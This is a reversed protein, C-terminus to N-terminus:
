QIMGKKNGTDGLSNEFFTNNILTPDSDDSYIGYGASYSLTCNSITPLTAPVDNLNINGNNYSDAYGGGYSLECYNLISGGTTHQGFFIGDWQGPQEGGAPASTTFVIPNGVTGNAVLSGFDGTGIQIESGSTFKVTTGAEVNLTSGSTSQVYLTGDIVFATPQAVWTVSSQNITASYVKIGKDTGYTNGTGITHAFKGSINIDYTTNEDFINNTFSTFSGDDGCEIGYYGSYRITCNNIAIQADENWIAGGYSDAYGGGAEVICYDMVCANTAGNSFYIYDWQGPAKQVSTSTFLIPLEETGQAILTGYEDSKGVEIESYSTLQITNGAAITLKAGSESAIYLSGDITYPATQLLWTANAQEIYDGKVLIGKGDLINGAGITHVHNGYMEIDYADNNNLTNNTFSTFFGDENCVVGHYDSYRITCNDIAIQTGENWIAGGYSDAYGGAYEVICYQMSNSGTATSNFQIYDWDGASPINSISTFTIPNDITGNATLGSNSGTVHIDAHQHFKLTSGPAITLHGGEKITLTGEIEYTGASWSVNTTISENVYEHTTIQEIDDDDDELLDCSTFSFAALFLMSLLLYYKKM